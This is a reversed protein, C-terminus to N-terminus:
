ISSARGREDTIGAAMVRPLQHQCANAVKAIPLDKFEPPILLEPTIGQSRLTAAVERNTLTAFAASVAAAANALAAKAAPDNSRQLRLAGEHIERLFAPVCHAILVLHERDHRPPSGDQKFKRVNYAKAKLMAIPDLLRYRIGDAEVESVRQLDATDLGAVSHLVEVLLIRGDQSVSRLRATVGVGFHRMPTPLFKWDPLTKLFALAKSSSVVDLDHSGHIIGRRLGPDLYMIAWLNVAQGGVM